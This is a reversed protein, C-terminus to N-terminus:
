IELVTGIEIAYQSPIQFYDTARYANRAMFGFLKERWIAMGPHTTAILTERGLFFTTATLDINLHYRRCQQLLKPVDPAEMFGYRAFIRFFGDGLAVVQLRERAPVHPVTETIITLIALTEHLVRNHQTNKLLAAPTGQPAATM